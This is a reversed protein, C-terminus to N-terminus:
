KPVFQFAPTNQVNIKFDTNNDIKEYIKTIFDTNTEGNFSLSTGFNIVIDNDKIEIEITPNYGVNWKYNRITPNQSGGEPFPSDDCIARIDKVYDTNISSVGIPLLFKNEYKNNAITDILIEIISGNNSIKLSKYNEKLSNLNGFYKPISIKFTNIIPYHVEPNVALFKSECDSGSVNQILQADSIIADQTKKFQINQFPNQIIIEGYNSTPPQPKVIDQPYLILSNDTAQWNTMKFNNTIDHISGTFNSRTKYVGTWIQFDNSFITIRHNNKALTKHHISDIVFGPVDDAREVAICTEDWYLIKNTASAPLEKGNEDKFGNPLYQGLERTNFVYNNESITKRFRDTLRGKLIGTMSNIGTQAIPDEDRKGTFLDLPIWTTDDMAGDKKLVNGFEVIKTPILLTISDMKLRINKNNWGIPVGAFFSNLFGGILPINQTSYQVNEVISMPLTTIHSFAFSLHNIVDHIKFTKNQLDLTQGTMDNPSTDFNREFKYTFSPDTILKEYTGGQIPNTQRITSLTSKSTLVGEFNARLTNDFNSQYQERWDKFTTQQEPTFEGIFFDTEATPRTNLINPIPTELGALLLRRPAEIKPNFTNTIVGDETAQITPRGYAFFSNFGTPSTVEIQISTAPVDRSRVDDVTVNQDADVVPWAYGEGSGSRHIFEEVANGSEAIQNNLTQFTIEVHSFKNGDKFYRTANSIYLYKYEEQEPIIYLKFLDIDTLDDYSIINFGEDIFQGIFDKDSLVPNFTSSLNNSAFYGRFYRGVKYEKTLHLDSIDKQYVNYANEWQAIINELGTFIRQFTSYDTIRANNPVIGNETYIFYGLTLELPFILFSNTKDLKKRPIRKKLVNNKIKQM